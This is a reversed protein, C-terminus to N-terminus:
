FTWARNVLYGGVLVVGTAVIQALLYHPTVLALMGAITLANLAIGGVAVLAFRPLAARHARESAFTFRHNLQYNTLAGAIAGATSAPVAGVGAWQVLGILVGYHLMTGAAGAAAYRLFQPARSRRLPTPQPAAMM